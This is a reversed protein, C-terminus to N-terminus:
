LSVMHVNNLISSGNVCMINVMIMIISVVNRLGENHQLKVCLLVQRLDEVVAQGTMLLDEHLALLPDPLVELISRKIEDEVHSKFQDHGTIFNTFQKWYSEKEKPPIMIGDYQAWSQNEAIRSLRKKKSARIKFVTFSIIQIETKPRNHM